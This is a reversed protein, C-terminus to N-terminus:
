MASPKLIECKVWWGQQTNRKAALEAPIQVQCYTGSPSMGTLDMTGGLWRCSPDFHSTGFTTAIAQLNPCAITSPSMTEVQLNLSYAPVSVVLLALVALTVTVIKRYNVTM